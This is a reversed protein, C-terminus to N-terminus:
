TRNSAQTSPEIAKFVIKGTSHDRREKEVGMQVCIELLVFRKISLSLPHLTLHLVPCHSFRNFPAVPSFRGIGSTIFSDRNGWIYPLLHEKSAGASKEQANGEGAELILEMSLKNIGRIGVM